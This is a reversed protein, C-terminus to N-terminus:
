AHQDNSLFCWMSLVYIMCVELRCVLHGHLFACCPSGQCSVPVRTPHLSSEHCCTARLCYTECARGAHGTPAPRKCNKFLRPCSLETTSSLYGSSTPQTIDTTSAMADAKFHQTTFYGHTPPTRHMLQHSLSDWALAHEPSNPQGIM